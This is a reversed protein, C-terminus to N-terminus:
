NLFMSMLGQVLGIVGGLVGGLVTILRLEKNVVSLVLRELEPIPFSAIKERVINRISLAALIDPLADIIAGRLYHWAKEIVADVKETNKIYIDRINWGAFASLLRRVIDGITTANAGALLGTVIFDRFKARSESEDSLARELVVRLLKEVLTSFDDASLRGIYAGIPKDWFQGLEQRMKGEVLERINVSQMMEQLPPVIDSLVREPTLFSKAMPGIFPINGVKDQLTRSISEAVSENSLWGSLGHLMPPVQAAIREEILLRVGEPLAQTWTLEGQTLNVYLPAAFGRALEARVEDTSLTAQLHEFVQDALAEVRQRGQDSRLFMVAKEVLLHETHSLANEGFLRTVLEGATPSQNLLNGLSQITAKKVAYDMEPRELSKAVGESTLLEEDVVEGLKDALDMQRRPILGPTMPLRKGFLRVERHPRFLMLIALWNTFLGIGAGVIVFLLLEM